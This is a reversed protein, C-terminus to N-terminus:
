EKLFDPTASAILLEILGTMAGQVRNFGGAKEIRTEDMYLDRNIELQLSHIGQDRRSYYQTIYGGAYPKNRTTSFGCSKLYDEVRDVLRPACSVGHFDGIVMDARRQGADPNHTGGVSPMSHCDLLLAVGHCAKAEELLTELADHYPRWCTEVRREAETFALKGKYIELGGTVVRAITGLGAGIKSSDTVVHPPLPADFMAPDLEYAARNPDCYARPFLAELLPAGLAPGAAYLEHIFADESRRLTLPDLQSAGRFSAPYIDGSHPSSLVLASRNSGAPRSVRIPPDAPFEPDPQFQRTRLSASSTM